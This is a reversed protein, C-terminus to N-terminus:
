LNNKNGTGSVECGNTSRGVIEKFAKVEFITKLALFRFFHTIRAYFMKTFFKLVAENLDLEFIV